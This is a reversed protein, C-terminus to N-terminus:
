LVAFLSSCRVFVFLMCNRPINERMDELLQAGGGKSELEAFTKQLERVQFALFHAFGQFVLPEVHTTIKKIWTDQEQFDALYVITQKGDSPSLVAFSIMPLMGFTFSFGFKGDTLPHM